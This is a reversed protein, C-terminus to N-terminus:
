ACFHMSLSAQVAHTAWWAYWPIFPDPDVDLPDPSTESPPDPDLSLEPEWLPEPDPEDPGPTYEGAMTPKGIPKWGIRYPKSQSASGCSQMSSLLHACPSM